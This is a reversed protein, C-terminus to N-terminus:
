LGQVKLKESEVVFPRGMFSRRCYSLNERASGVRMSGTKDVRFCINSKSVLSTDAEPAKM